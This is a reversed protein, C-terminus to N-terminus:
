QDSQLIIGINKKGNKKLKFYKKRCSQSLICYKDSKFRIHLKFISEYVHLSNKVTSSDFHM